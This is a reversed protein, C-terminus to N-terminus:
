SGHSTPTRNGDADATGVVQDATDSVNRATFGTAGGTTKGAVAAAIVRILHSASFGVELVSAWIDAVLTGFSTLTRSGSSWVAAPVAAFAAAIDSADAPDPPLNDTKAKVAAIGANDPATYSASALRSSITADLNDIKAARAATYDSAAPPGGAPILDTKAKIAAVSAGAFLTADTLISDRITDTPDAGEIALVDAKMNGGATLAAPLRAPIDGATQTTGAVKIVDVRGNADVSLQGTTTQPQPDWIEFCFGGWADNTTTNDPGGYNLTSAALVVEVSYAADFNVSAGPTLGVIVFEAYLSGGTLPQTLAPIQRALVSAGNMVGFLTRFTAASAAFGVRMRCFVKGSAPVTATVRLNTTDFATMALLSAMSKTVSSSPDYNVAGLLNM